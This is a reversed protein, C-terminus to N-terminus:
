YVLPILKRTKKRYESYEDGFEQDLMEEEASIRYLYIATFMVPFLIATVSNSSLVGFGCWLLITGLYGPHRVKSYPGSTVVKQGRAVLLTRSYYSGLTSASWARLSLGFLMIFLSVLEEVFGLTFLGVGLIDLTLPLLLGFGFGAAVVVTSGRDHIGTRFTRASETQRLFQEILIFAFLVIYGVLLSFLTSPPIL